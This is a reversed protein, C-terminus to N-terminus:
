KKAKLEEVLKKFKPHDKVVMDHTATNGLFVASYNFGNEILDIYEPNKSVTEFAKELKKVIAKPTKPPAWFSRYLAADVEIGKEWLTTVDPFFKSRNKTAVALMRMDGANVLAKVESVQSFLCDVHGGLTATRSKSASGFPVYTVKIGMEEWILSSFIHNTGGSGVSAWRLKGPNKKAFEWLDEITNFPSSKPISVANADVVMTALPEMDKWAPVQLVGSLNFALMSHPGMALITYGDPRANYVEMTGIVGSAGSMNVVVVPKGIDFFKNVGRTLTDTGGGAGYPVVLRISREPFKDAAGAFASGACLLTAMCMSLCMIGVIFRKTNM